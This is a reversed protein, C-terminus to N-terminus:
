GVCVVDRSERGKAGTVVLIMAVTLLCLGVQSGLVPRDLTHPWRGVVALRCFRWTQNQLL